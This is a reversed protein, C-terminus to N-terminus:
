AREEPNSPRKRGRRILVALFIAAGLLIIGAGIKTFSFVYKRGEPDYSFCIKLWKNITPRAQSQAAEQAAMQLDAPLYTVGYMYRTIEGKPSLFIIAAAHIFDDGQKKFKFGVSDALARSTAADSTLFRWAAPPFPRTIERLYNTRKEAAIEPTDRDDFSVTIVQFDRGPVAETRNLVEVVGNLQPTCIGACRFYNLTLITPKDVLTRLAVAKGDEDKFTLDLAAPKGLKEDIGVEQATFPPPATEAAKAPAQAFGPAGLLAPLLALLALRHRLPKM